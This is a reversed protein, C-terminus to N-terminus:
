LSSYENHLGCPRGDADREVVFNRQRDNFLQMLREMPLKNVDQGAVASQQDRLAQWAHDLEFPAIKLHRVDDLRPLFRWGLPQAALASNAILFDLVRDQLSTASGARTYADATHPVTVAIPPPCLNVDMDIRGAAFGKGVARPIAVSAM